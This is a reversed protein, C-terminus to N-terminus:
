SKKNDFAKLPFNIGITVKGTTIANKGSTTGEFQAFPVISKVPVDIGCIIDLALGFDNQNAPSGAQYISDSYHHNIFILALGGGAFPKVPSSFALPFYCRADLNLSIGTISKVGAESLFWGELAPVAHIIDFIEYDTQAGMGFAAKTEQPELSVFSLQGGYWQLGANTFHSGGQAMVTNACLAFFAASLILRVTM